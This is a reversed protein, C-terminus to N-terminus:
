RLLKFAAMVARVVGRPCPKTAICTPVGEPQEVWLKFPIQADELASACGRLANESEAALVIKHMTESANLYAITVPDERNAWNVASSAHCAQAILAGKGWGKLDGRVLIYQVVTDDDMNTASADRARPRFM